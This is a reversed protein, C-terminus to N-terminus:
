HEWIKLEDVLEEENYVWELQFIILLHTQEKKKTRDQNSKDQLSLKQISQDEVIGDIRELTMRTKSQLAKFLFCCKDPFSPERIILNRTIETRYM